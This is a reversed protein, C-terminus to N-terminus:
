QLAYGLPFFLLPLALPRPFAWYQVTAANGAPVGCRSSKASAGEPSLRADDARVDGVNGHGGLVKSVHDKIDEAYANRM